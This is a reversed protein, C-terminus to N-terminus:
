DFFPNLQVQPGADGSQFKAASDTSLNPVPIAPLRDSFSTPEAEFFVNDFDPKSVASATGDCQSRAIKADFMALATKALVVDRPPEGLNALRSSVERSEIFGALISRPTQPYAFCCFSFVAIAVSLMRAVLKIM